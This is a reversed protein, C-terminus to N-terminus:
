LEDEVGDKVDWWTVWRDEKLWEGNTCWFDSANLRAKNDWHCRYLGSMDSYLGFRCNKCVMEVM